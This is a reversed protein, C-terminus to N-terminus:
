PCIALRGQSFHIPEDALQSVANQGIQGIQERGSAGDRLHADAAPPAVPEEHQGLRQVFFQGLVARWPRREGDGGRQERQDIEQARKTTGALADGPPTAPFIAVPRAARDSSM